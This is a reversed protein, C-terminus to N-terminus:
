ADEALVRKLDALVAEAWLIGGGAWLASDVVHAREERVARLRSWLPHRALKARAQENREAEAPNDASYVILVDGDIEAVRELSLELDKSHGPPRRLGAATLLTPVYGTGEVRIQDPFVRAVSVIGPDSGLGDRFAALRERHREIADEAAEPRGVITAIDRVEQEYDSYTLPVGVTPAIRSLREYIDEQWPNALILDPELAAIEELDPETSCCVVEIGDTRGELWAGFPYDKAPDGSSGIPPAGLAVLADLIAYENLVVVRTPEPPVATTGLAHTVTRAQAAPEDGTEDGCGAAITAVVALVAIAAARRM